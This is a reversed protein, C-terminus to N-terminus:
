QEPSFDPIWAHLRRCFFENDDEALLMAHPM